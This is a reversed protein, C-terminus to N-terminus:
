EFDVISKFPEENHLCINGCFTWCCTHNQHLCTRGRTCRKRCYKNPPQVWCQQTEKVELPILCESKTGGLVPLIIVVASISVILLLVWSKM